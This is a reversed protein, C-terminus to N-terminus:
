VVHLEINVSTGKGPESNIDITGKLYDARSRINNWGAGAADHLVSMDIGKGNDEVTISVREPDCVTQVLVQSAGAHKIVNNVLEQIIRYVNTEVPKDYKGTEGFNQYIVQIAGSANITKCYDNIADALGFKALAEPMMNHAVRRLEKVSNDIMQVSREFLRSNEETLIVNEKMNLVSHKIGSLLGGLGDHLDKAMRRREEEQGRLLAQSALLQKEKELEGIKQEQMAANQQVLQNKKELLKSRNYWIAALSAALLLLLSAIIFRNKSATAKKESTILQSQFQLSDTLSKQRYEYEVSLKENQINIKENFLSDNVVNLKELYEFAKANNGTKKFYRYMLGYHQQLFEKDSIEPVYLAAQSAYQYAAALDNKLLYSESLNNLFNANNQANGLNKSIQLAQQLYHIASDPMQKKAFANGINGLANSIGAKNDIGNNLRLSLQQFYIASDPMQKNMYLNGINGYANALGVSDNIRIKIVMSKKAYHLAYDWDGISEYVLGINSLVGAQGKENKETEFLQLSEFFTVLSKYYESNYMMANGKNNLSKAYNLKNTNKWLMGASDFALSAKRYNGEYFNCYGEETYVKASLSDAKLRTAAIKLKHIIGLAVETSTDMALRTEKLLQEFATIDGPLQEYRNQGNVPHQYGWLLFLVATLKVFIRKYLSTM